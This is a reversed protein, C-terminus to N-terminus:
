KTMEDTIEPTILWMIAENGSMTYEKCNKMKTMINKKRVRKTDSILKIM